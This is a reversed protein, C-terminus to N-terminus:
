KANVNGLDWIFHVVTIYMPWHPYFYHVHFHSWKVGFNDSSFHGEIINKTEM